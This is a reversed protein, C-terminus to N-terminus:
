AWVSILNTRLDHEPQYLVAEVRLRRATGDALEWQLEKGARAGLLEMGAPTLVSIHADDVPKDAPYVLRLIHREGTRVEGCLVRSYMTVVDPPM